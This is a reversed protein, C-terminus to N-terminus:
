RLLLYILLAITGLLLIPLNFAIGNKLMVGFESPGSRGMAARKNSSRGIIQGSRTGDFHQAAQAYEDEAHEIVAIARDLNGALNARSWTEPNLKEIRGLHDAFCHRTQELDAGQQRLDLLERDILTLATALRESIEVQNELFTKKRLNLEELERKQRELEERQHQLQELQRQAVELKADSSSTAIVRAGALKAIQVAALSVGGGIGWVLVTEGPRLQARTMLMRWATLTALPYAAAEAWSLAEGFRAVNAEPVVVYEAITGELHEGLLRYRRCL